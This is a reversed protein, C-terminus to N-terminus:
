SNKLYEYGKETVSYFDGCLMGTPNGHNQMYGNEVLWECDDYDTTGPGTIFRNRYNEPWATSHILIEVRRENM